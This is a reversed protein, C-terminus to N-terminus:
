SNNRLSLTNHFFKEGLIPIYHSGREREGM